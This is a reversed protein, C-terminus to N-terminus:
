GERPRRLSFRVCLRLLSVPLVGIGLGLEDSSGDLVVIEGLCALGHLGEKHTDGHHAEEYAYKM